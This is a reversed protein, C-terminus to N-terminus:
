YRGNLKEKEKQIADIVQMLGAVTGDDLSELRELLALERRNIAQKLQGGRSCDCFKMENPNGGSYYKGTGGIDTDTDTGYWRDNVTAYGKGYCNTCGGYAKAVEQERQKTYSTILQKFKAFDEDISFVIMPDNTRELRRGHHIGHRVTEEVLVSLENDFETPEEASTNDLSESM